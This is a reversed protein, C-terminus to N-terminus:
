PRAPPESERATSENRNGRREVARDIYGGDRWFYLYGHAGLYLAAGVFILTMLGVVSPEVLPPAGEPLWSTAMQLPVMLVLALFGLLYMYRVFERLMWEFWGPNGHREHAKKRREVRHSAIEM